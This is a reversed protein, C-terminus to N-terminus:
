PPALILEVGGPESRELGESTTRAAGGRERVTFQGLGDAGARVAGVLDAQEDERDRIRAALRERLHPSSGGEARRYALVLDLQEWLAQRLEGSRATGPEARAGTPDVISLEVRTSLPYTADLVAFRVTEGSREVRVARGGFPMVVPGGALAERLVAPDTRADRLSSASAPARLEELVPRLEDVGIVVNLGQAGRYGAHYVGVLELEGTTCSVALVPSGSSGLNLLADVAFDEHDWGRDLDRQGVGIVRGTNAAPFAGLPFGRVLVADGVQVSRSSGLAYPLTELRKPAALVALDLAEDAVVPALALQGHGEPEAENAVIRVEERVRRSGAPVGELDV